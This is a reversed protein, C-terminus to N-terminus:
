RAVKLRGVVRKEMRRPDYDEYIKMYHSAEAFLKYQVNERARKITEQEGYFQLEDWTVILEARLEEFNVRVVAPEIHDALRDEARRRAYGEKWAKDREGALWKRFHAAGAWLAFALVPLGVFLLALIVDNNM